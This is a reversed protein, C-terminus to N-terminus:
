RRLQRVLRVHNETSKIYPNLDIEDRIFAGWAQDVPFTDDGGGFVVAPTGTWWFNLISARAFPFYNDDLGRGGPFNIDLSLTEERTPLRWDSFGCLGAANVAAVYAETNCGSGSCSGGNEAGPAGGDNIGSSNFWTYRWTRDRLGGDNSKVEWMRATNGDLVCDWPTDDYDVTQDPLENGNADFKVLFMGAHGNTDDDETADLGFEGDQDPFDAQPCTTGVLSENACGTFGSDNLTFMLTEDDVIHATVNREPLTANGADPEALRLIFHEDGEIRLDGDVNVNILGLDEGAPIVVMGNTSEYDGDAVTATGDGTTFEFSVENRAPRDLFVGFVMNTTVGTGEFQPVSLVSIIPENDIIEGTATADGIWANASTARLRLEFVETLEAIEDDVIMVGIEAATVGAPIVIRGGGSEYDTAELASRDSTDYELIVDSLPARSLRLPFLMEGGEEASASKVVDIRVRPALPEEGSSRVLRSHLAAEKGFSNISGQNFDVVKAALGNRSDPTSSWFPRTPTDPFLGPAIAPGICALNTLSDLEKINPVRWDTLGAFDSSQTARLTEGWSRPSENTTCSDDSLIDPTGGDAFDFGLPCRQWMLGTNRDTVTGDGNIGFRSRDINSACFQSPSGAVATGTTQMTFGGATDDTELPDGLWVTADSEPGSEALSVRLLYAVRNFHGIGCDSLDIDGKLSRTTRRVAGNIMGLFSVTVQEGIPLPGPSMDVGNLRGESHFLQNEGIRKGIRSEQFIAERKWKAEGKSIAELSEFCEYNVSFRFAAERGTLYELLTPNVNYTHAAITSNQQYTQTWNLEAWVDSEQEGFQTTARVRVRGTEDGYMWIGSNRAASGPEIDVAIELPVPPSENNVPDEPEPAPVGDLVVNWRAVIKPDASQAFGTSAALMLLPGTALAIAASRVLTAFRNITNM